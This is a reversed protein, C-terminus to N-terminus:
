KRRISDCFVVHILSKLKELCVASYFIQPILCITTDKELNWFLIEDSLSHNWIQGNQTSKHYVIPRIKRQIHPNVKWNIM